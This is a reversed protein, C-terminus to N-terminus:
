SRDGRDARPPRPLRRKSRRGPEDARGLRWRLTGVTGAMQSIAVASERRITVLSESQDHLRSM